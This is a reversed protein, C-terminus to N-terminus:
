PLIKSSGTIGRNITEIFTKVLPEYEDRNYLLAGDIMANVDSLPKLVVAPNHNMRNFFSPMLAVGLGAGVLIMATNANSTQHITQPSFYSIYKLISTSDLEESEFYAVFSEYTLQKMSISEEKALPHTIPLAIQLPWATLPMVSVAKPVRHSLTSTFGVHLKRELILNVQAIPDHEQLHIYVNPMKDQAIQLIQELIGSYAAGKSYGIYVEGFKGSFLRKTANM